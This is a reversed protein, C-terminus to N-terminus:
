NYVPINETYKMYNFLSNQKDLLLFEKTYVKKFLKGTDQNKTYPLFYKDEQGKM